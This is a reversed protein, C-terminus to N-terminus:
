KSVICTKIFNKHFEDIKIQLEALSGNNEIVEDALSLRVARKAQALMISKVESETLYSRTIARKIQLSENCDIVLTKNAIRDYRNSEFLLPVVIIQYAPHLTHANEALQQIAHEYIAPHILAELKLRDEKKIFVHARLKARDLNGDATLFDAGLAHNIDTLIPMGAATLDHAIADTDVVPVGLLEFQKAAESKGSGIGGTLAIVPTHIQQPTSNM